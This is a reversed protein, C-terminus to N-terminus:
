RGLFGFGILLTELLQERLVTSQSFLHAVGLLVESKRCSLHAFELILESEDAIFIFFEFLM